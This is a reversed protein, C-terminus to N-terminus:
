NGREENYLVPVNHLFLKRKQPLWNQGAEPAETEDVALRVRDASDCGYFAHHGIVRVSAPVFIDTLSKCYSFADPWLTLVGDPISLAKLNGCKFFAMQSIETVTDPIRVEYLGACEAFAMEGVRAVGPAIECCLAAQLASAEAESLKENEAPDKGGMVTDWVGTEQQWRDVAEAFAAAGLAIIMVLAMLMSLIRKTNNM